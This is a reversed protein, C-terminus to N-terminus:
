YKKALNAFSNKRSKAAVEGTEARKAKAIKALRITVDVHEPQCVSPLVSV